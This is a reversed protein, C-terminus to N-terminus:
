VHKSERKISRQSSRRANIQQGHAADTTSESTFFAPSKSVGPTTILPMEDWTRGDLTRGGKATGGNSKATPDSPNPNNDRKGWQKFFFPVAASVCQDRITRVWNHLMPRAGSGSEGGVIVWDIGKLPPRRMPGILPEVSLFKVKAATRKLLTIRERVRDDEVSTGLWMNDPWDLFDSLVVAREPRKTLVQFTHQPCRRMVDFVRL